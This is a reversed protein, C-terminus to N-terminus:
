NEISNWLEEPNIKLEKPLKELMKIFVLKKTEPNWYESPGAISKNKGDNKWKELSEQIESLSMSVLILDDVPKKDLRNIFKKSKDIQEQKFEEKDKDLTFQIGTNNHTNIKIARTYEKKIHLKFDMKSRVDNHVDGMEITFPLNPNDIFLKTLYSEVMTEALIGSQISEYPKMKKSKSIEQYSEICLDHPNASLNELEAIILQENYIEKIKRRTERLIFEKKTQRDFNSDLNLEFGNIGAVMIDGKTQFIKEGQRNLAYGEGNDTYINKGHKVFSIDEGTDVKKLLEHMTEVLEQKREQISLIKEQTNENLYYTRDKFEKNESKNKLFDEFNEKFGKM